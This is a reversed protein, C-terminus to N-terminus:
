PIKSKDGISHPIFTLLLLPFYSKKKEIATRSRIKSSVMAMCLMSFSIRSVKGRINGSNHFVKASWVFWTMLSLNISAFTSSETGHLHMNRLSFNWLILFSIAIVVVVLARAFYFLSSAAAAAGCKGFPPLVAFCWVSVSRIRYPMTSSKSRMEFLNKIGNWKMGEFGNPTTRRNKATHANRQRRVEFFPLYLACYIVVHIFLDFPRTKTKRRRM